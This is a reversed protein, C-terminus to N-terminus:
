YLTMQDFDLTVLFVKVDEPKAPTMVVELNTSRGPLFSNTVSTEKSKSFHKGWRLIIKAGNFRASTLNGIGLQAKYGDLYPSINRCLVTFAGYKTPAVSYGKDETSVSATGDTLGSVQLRLKTLEHELQDVKEQLSEKSAPTESVPLPTPGKNDCSFVTLSFIILCIASTSRRSLMYNAEKLRSETDYDYRHM